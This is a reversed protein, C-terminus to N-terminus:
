QKAEQKVVECLFKIVLAYGHERALSLYFAQMQELTMAEKHKKM